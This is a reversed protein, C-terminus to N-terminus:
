RATAETTQAAPRPARATQQRASNLARLRNVWDEPYLWHNNPVRLGAYRAVDQIFAVCNYVAANWVPTSKQLHRIYAFVRQAEAETLYIRYSATLYQEDLDGYSKGTESPVPVIHGLIYPLVSDSAPHLGAVEIKKDGVKGYWIFAHGYSAATRSRFDVYYPRSVAASADPHASAKRPHAGAAPTDQAGAAGISLGTAIAVACLVLKNRRIQV